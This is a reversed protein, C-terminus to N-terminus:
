LLAGHDILGDFDLAVLKGDKDAGARLRM